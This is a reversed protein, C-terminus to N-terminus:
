LAYLPPSAPPGLLGCTMTQQLAALRSLPLLIMHRVKSFCTKPVFAIKKTEIVRRSFLTWSTMFYICSNESCAAAVGSSLHCYHAYTSVSSYIDVDGVEEVATEEHLGVYALQPSSFVVSPM